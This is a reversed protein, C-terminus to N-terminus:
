DYGDALHTPNRPDFDLPGVDLELGLRALLQVTAATLGNNEQYPSDFPVHIVVTRRQPNLSEILGSVVDEGGLSIILREVADAWTENSELASPMVWGTSGDRHAILRGGSPLIQQSEGQFGFLELEVRRDKEVYTM